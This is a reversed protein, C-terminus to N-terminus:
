RVVRAIFIISAPQGSDPDRPERTEVKAFGSRRLLELWTELTRFYWPAPNVFDSSFGAWSGTRWGDRYDSGAYVRPHLTQVIFRGNANLLTPISRILADVSEGGLLSFNCVALDFNMNLKGKALDEYGMCRYDGASLRQASEVLAPIADIGTVGVGRQQMARCLWGEGCGIDLATEVPETFAAEVIAHDTVRRRSAITKERVARTWAAANQQWSQLIEAESDHSM